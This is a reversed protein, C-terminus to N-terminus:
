HIEAYTAGYQVDIDLAVNLKLKKNAQTIAWRLTKEHVVEEGKRVYNITEDHFQGVINPRKSLYFAMWTDFCYVGTSQNLTSFVDKEYRLSYWFGSVPNKVWMQGGLRRVGKLMDDSFESIAWNMEWFTKLLKDAEKVPIGSTRALKPPGVGYLASYNTTKAKKRENELREFLKKQGEPPLNKMDSLNM